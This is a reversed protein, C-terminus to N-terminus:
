AKSSDKAGKSWETSEAEEAKANAASKKQAASEAKQANGAAKKTNEGAAKKGAMTLRLNIDTPPDIPLPNHIPHLDTVSM